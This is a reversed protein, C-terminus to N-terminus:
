GRIASVIGWFIFMGLGIAIVLLLLPSLDTILGKVYGLLETINATTIELFM